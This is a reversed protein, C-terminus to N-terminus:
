PHDSVSHGAASLSVARLRHLEAEYLREGTREVRALADDLLRLAEAPRHDRLCAEALLGIGWALLHQAGGAALDDLHRRMRVDAGAADGDLAQVWGLVV